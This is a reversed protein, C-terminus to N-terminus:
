QPSLYPYAKFTEVFGFPRCYSWAMGDPMLISTIKKSGRQIAEQIRCAAMATGVGQGRGKERVAANWLGSLTDGTMVLSSGGVPEGDLYGLYHSLPAEKAYGIKKYADYMFATAEKPHEPFFTECVVESWVKLDHDNSVRQVHVRENKRPLDPIKSTLDLTVFGLHGICQYGKEELKKGMEGKEHLIWWHPLNLKQFDALNQEFTSQDLEQKTIIGNFNFIPLSTTWRTYSPHDQFGEQNIFSLRFYDSLHQFYPAKM